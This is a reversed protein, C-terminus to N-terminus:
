LITYIGYSERNFVGNLLRIANEGLIMSKEKEDISLKEIHEIGKVADSWPTDTAFLIKDAGHKEILKRFMEKGIYDRDEVCNDWVGFLFATDLYVNEGALYEYVENWQKWGGMHALIMKDPKLTDLVKRMKDPFIHTHFDIIM